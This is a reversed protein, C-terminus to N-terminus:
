SSGRESCWDGLQSVLPLSCYGGEQQAGKALRGEDSMMQAGWRGKSDQQHTRLGRM